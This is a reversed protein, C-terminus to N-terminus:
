VLRYGVRYFTHVTGTSLTSQLVLHCIGTSERILSWDRNAQGFGETRKSRVSLRNKGPKKNKKQVWKPTVIQRNLHLYDPTDRGGAHPIRAEAAGRKTEREKEEGTGWIESNPNIDRRRLEAEM